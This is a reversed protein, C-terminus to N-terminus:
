TTESKGLAVKTEPLVQSRLYIRLLCCSRSNDVTDEPLDKKEIIMKVGFNDVKLYIEIWLKGFRTEREAIFM